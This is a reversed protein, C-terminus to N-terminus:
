GASYYKLLKATLPALPACAAIDDAGIYFPSLPVAVVTLCLIVPATIYGINKAMNLILQKTLNPPVKIIDLIPCLKKIRNCGEPNSCYGGSLGGSLLYKGAGSRIDILEYGIGSWDGIEIINQPVIALLLPNDQLISKIVVKDAQPISLYNLREVTSNSIFYISINREVATTLISGASIGSSINYFEEFMEGELASLASGREFNFIVLSEEKISSTVQDLKLDFSTGGDAVTLPNGEFTSVSKSKSVFAVAPKTRAWRSGFQEALGDSYYDGRFFFHSGVLYLSERELTENQSTLQLAKIRQYTQNHTTIETRPANIVIASKEGAYLWKTVTTTDILSMSFTVDVESGYTVPTGNTYSTNLWIQPTVNIEYAPISSNQMKASDNQTTPTFDIAFPLGAIETLNYYFSTTNIITTLELNIKWKLASPLNTYEFSRNFDFQMSFPLYVEEPPMVEEPIFFDVTINQLETVNIHSNLYEEIFSTNIGQIYGATENITANATAGEQLETANVTSNVSIYEDTKTYPEASKWSGDLQIWQSRTGPYIPAYTEVWVREM